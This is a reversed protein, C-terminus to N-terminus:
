AKTVLLCFIISVSIFLRITVYTARESKEIFYNQLQLIYIQRTM